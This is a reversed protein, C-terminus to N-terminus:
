GELFVSLSINMHRVFIRLLKLYVFSHHYIYSSRITPHDSVQIQVQILPTFVILPMDDICEATLSIVKIALQIAKRMCCMGVAWLVSVCMLVAMIAELSQTEQQSHVPPNENRWEVVTIYSLYFLYVFILWILQIASWVVVTLLCQSRLIYMWLFSAVLAISFGYGFIVDQAQIMDSFFSILFNKFAQTGFQNRYASNSLICRNYVSSSSLKLMCGCNSQIQFQLPNGSFCTSAIYSQLDLGPVSLIYDLCYYDSPNTSNFPINTSPCSDVCVGVGNTLVSYFYSSSEVAATQGCVQGLDNIPDLLRYPNGYKTSNAGLITMIAWLAVIALLFIIDTTKRSPTCGDYNGHAGHKQALLDEKDADTLQYHHLHPM